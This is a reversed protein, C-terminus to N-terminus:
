QIVVEALLWCKDMILHIKGINTLESVNNIRYFGSTLATDLSGTTEASGGVVGTKSVYNNHAHSAAAYSGAAQKGDLANQLGSINAITHTHGLKSYISDHNHDSSVKDDLIEDM